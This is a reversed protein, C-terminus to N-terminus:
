RDRLNAQRKVYEFLKKVPYYILIAFASNLVISPLFREMLFLQSSMDAIGILRYLGFQYYEFFMVAVVIILLQILFSDQIRKQSYACAYGILAFGFTYVGLLQTYVIDYFLGFTIGYVISSSRGFHIGILVLMVVLFRPVLTVAVTYDSPTVLQFLTGEIVLLIFVFAPIYIRSM